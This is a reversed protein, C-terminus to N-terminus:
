LHPYIICIVTGLGTGSDKYLRSIFYARVTRQAKALHLKVTEPSLGLIQAVEERKLNELKILSYVKQQQPPLLAIAQKLLLSYEKRLLDTDAFFSGEKNAHGAPDDQIEQLAKRKLANYVHNRTATYLYSKFHTIESLSDKKLWIQLFVDQVIDEALDASETMRFAISFVKDRYENFINSFLVEQSQPEM